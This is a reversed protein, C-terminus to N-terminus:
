SKSKMVRRLVYVYLNMWNGKLIERLPACFRLASKSMYFEIERDNFANMRISVLQILDIQQHYELSRRTFNFSNKGIKSTLKKQENLPIQPHAHSQFRLKSERAKPASTQSYGNAVQLACHGM